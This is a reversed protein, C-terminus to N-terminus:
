SPQSVPMSPVLTEDRLQANVASALSRRRGGRKPAPLCRSSFACLRAWLANDNKCTVEDLISALRSAALHRSARPVRRLIRVSSPQVNFASM